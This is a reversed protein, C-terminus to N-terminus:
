HFLSLNKELSSREVEQLRHSGQLALPLWAGGSLKLCFRSMFDLEKTLCSNGQAPRPEPGAEDRVVAGKLLRHQLKALGSEAQGGM